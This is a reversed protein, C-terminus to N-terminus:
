GASLWPHGACHHLANAVHSLVQRCQHALQLASCLAASRCPAQMRLAMLDMECAAQRGRWLRVLRTQLM